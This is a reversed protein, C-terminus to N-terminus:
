AAEETAIGKVRRRIVHVSELYGAEALEYVCKRATWMTCGFKAMIAKYSLEEDPNDEFFKRVRAPLGPQRRDNM